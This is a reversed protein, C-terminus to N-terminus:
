KIKELIIAIEKDHETIELKQSLDDAKLESITKELSKNLVSLNDKINSIDHKVDNIPNLVTAMLWFVIGAGAVFIEIIIRGEKTMMEWFNKEKVCEKETM